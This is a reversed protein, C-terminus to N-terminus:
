VTAKKPFIQRVMNLNADYYALICMDKFKVKFYNPRSKYFEVQIDEQKFNEDIYQKIKEEM